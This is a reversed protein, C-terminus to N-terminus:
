PRFADLLIEECILADDGEQPPSIAAKVAPLEALDHAALFASMVAAVGEPRVSRLNDDFWAGKAAPNTVIEYSPFYDVDGHLDAFEGAAARLVAKSYGTAALVHQGSATATLPVPSVTLLLRMDARIDHLLKRARSLDELVDAYSFNVFAHRVPDFEGAIVGPCVPYVRGTARDMWAEALGLTFIMVSTQTLMGGVKRLHVHRMLVAERRSSLGEPEV